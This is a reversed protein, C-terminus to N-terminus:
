GRAVLPCMMAAPLTKSMRKNGHKHIITWRAAAFPSIVYFSDNEDIAKLLFHLKLRM